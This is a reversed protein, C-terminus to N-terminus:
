LLPVLKGDSYRAQRLAEGPQARLVLGEEQMVIQRPYAAYSTILWGDGDEDGDRTLCGNACRLRGQGDRYLYATTGFGLLYAVLEEGMDWDDGAANAFLRAFLPDSAGRFVSQGFRNRSLSPMNLNPAAVSYTSAAEGPQLRRPTSVVNWDYCNFVAMSARYAAELYQPGGLHEYATRASAAVLGGWLSHIMYSLAEWWRDPNQARYDNSFGINALILRAYQEGEGTLGVRLLTECTPGFGANDYFHETVAGAFQRVNRKLRSGFAEWLERLRRHEGTLGCAALDALLDQVYMIFVGNLGTENKERQGEHCDPDLRVCLVEAAWRLYTQPPHLKLLAADMRSLLYFVHAIYDLDFIRYFTGYLVRPRSFDGGEFWHNKMDLVASAEAMAVQEPVPAALSNKMLLFALKGLSEGQNSLPLFAHPRGATGAPDYNNRCLWEARKELIRDIPELVNWVLVDKRGDDLTLELKHEGAEERRLALRLVEGHVGDAAFRERVAEEAALRDTMAEEGGTALREAEAEEAGLREIVAEERRRFSGAAEPVASVVRIERVGEGAPLELEAEFTGGRVLVPTYNWRPHGYAMAQRYFDDRGECSAIAYEWSMNQGAELVVPHYAEGYIWDAAASEPMSGGDEVLSLRHFLVGDLSPSVQELFKNEYRCFSGFAATRGKMGYVALHPAEDSRRIAAFKAFDGGLHAFVACSQQMNRLVNEDRFMVYALSFWIHLGEIRVSKDGRNRCEVIWRIREEELVYTLGVELKEAKFRVQMRSDSGRTIEPTLEASDLTQGDVVATWEGFLKDLTDEYGAEALYEPDVVWNMAIPDEKMLLATVAGRGNFALKFKANSLITM